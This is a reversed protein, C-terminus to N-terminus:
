APRYPLPRFQLASGDRAKLHVEGAEVSPALAVALLDWGGGPAPAANAVMGCAQDAPEPAFLEDGPQVPQDVHALYLHRKIKGLYHSRAVVEQGPYCGKSFSIGGLAEMNAM